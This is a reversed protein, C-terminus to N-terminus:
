EKIPEGRLRSVPCACRFGPMPFSCFPHLFYTRQHVPVSIVSHYRIEYMPIYMFVAYKAAKLYPDPCRVGFCMFVSSIEYSRGKPMGARVTTPRLAPPRAPKLYASFSGGPRCHERGLGHTQGTSFGTNGKPSSVGFFLKEKNPSRKLNRHFNIRSDQVQM